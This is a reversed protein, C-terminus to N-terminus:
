VRDRQLLPVTKCEVTDLASPHDASAKSAACRLLFQAYMDGRWILIDATFSSVVRVVHFCSLGAVRNLMGAGLKKTRLLM